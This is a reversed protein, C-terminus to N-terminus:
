GQNLITWALMMQAIFGAFFAMTRLWPIALLYCAYHAFRAAAYIQAALLTMPGLLGKAQAVLLLAGFVILNEVANQHAKQARLAWNSITPATDPYGVTAILGQQYIRELIYPTWMVAIFTAVVTLLELENM